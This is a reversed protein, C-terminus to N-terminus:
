SSLFTSCVICLWIFPFLYVPRLCLLNTAAKSPVAGTEAFQAFQAFQAKEETEAYNQM